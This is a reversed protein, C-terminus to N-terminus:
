HQNNIYALPSLSPKTEEGIMRVRILAREYMDKIVDIDRSSLQKKWLVRSMGKKCIRDLYIFIM